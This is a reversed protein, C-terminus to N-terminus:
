LGGEDSTGGAQAKITEAEEDTIETWNDASDNVALFIKSALTRKDASLTTDAQTLKHGDSATLVTVTYTGTTM